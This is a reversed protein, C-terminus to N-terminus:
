LYKPNGTDDLVHLEWQNAAIGTHWVIRDLWPGANTRNVQDGKGMINRIQWAEGGDGYCKADDGDCASHSLGILHGFEHALVNNKTMIHRGERDLTEVENVNMLADTWHYSDMRLSVEGEKRKFAKVNLSAPAATPLYRVELSCNVGKTERKPGSAPWDFYHYSDPPWLRFRNGWFKEAMTKADMKFQNFAADPWPVVAVQRGSVDMLQSGGQPQVAEVFIELIIRLEFFGTGTKSPDLIMSGRLNPTGQIAPNYPRGAAPPTVLPTEGIPIILVLGPPISKVSEPRLVPTFGGGSKKKEAEALAVRFNDNEKMDWLTKFPVRAMRAISDPTDGAKTTYLRFSKSKPIDSM